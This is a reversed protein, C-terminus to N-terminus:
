LFEVDYAQNNVPSYLTFTTASAYLYKPFVETKDAGLVAGNLYFRVSAKKYDSGNATTFGTPFTVTKTYLGAGDPGTWGTNTVAVTTGRTLNYSDVRDSNTGNHKHVNTQTINAELADFVPDGKDGRDPMQYGFSLTTAM